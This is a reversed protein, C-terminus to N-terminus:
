LDILMLTAQEYNVMYSMNLFFSSIALVFALQSAEHLLKRQTKSVETIGHMDFCPLSAVFYKPPVINAERDPNNAPDRLATISDHLYFMYNRRLSCIIAGLQNELNNFYQLKINLLNPTWINKDYCSSQQFSCAHDNFPLIRDCMSSLPAKSLILDVNIYKNPPEKSEPKKPNHKLFHHQYLTSEKYWSPEDLYLKHHQLEQQINERLTWHNNLLIHRLTKLHNITLKPCDKSKLIDLLTNCTLSEPPPFSPPLRTLTPTKSGAAIYQHAFFIALELVISALIAIITVTLPAGISLTIAITIITLIALCIATIKLTRTSSICLIHRLHIQETLNTEPLVANNSDLPEM